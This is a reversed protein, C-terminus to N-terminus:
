NKGIIEGIDITGDKGVDITPHLKEYAAKADTMWKLYAEPSAFKEYHAQRQEGTM